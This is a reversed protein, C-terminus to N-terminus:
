DKRVYRCGSYEFRHTSSSSIKKFLFARGRSALDVSHVLLVGTAPDVTFTRKEEFNTVRVPPVTVVVPAALEIKMTLPQLGDHVVSLQGRMKANMKRLLM